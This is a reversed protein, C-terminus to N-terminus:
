KETELVVRTGAPLIEVPHDFGESWTIDPNSLNVIIDYARLIYMGKWVGGILQAIQGIRMKNATTGQQVNNDVEVRM